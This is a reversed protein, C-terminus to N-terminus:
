KKKAGAKAEETEASKLARTTDITVIPSSVANLISYSHDPLDKVKFSNGIDLGSINVDIAEPMDKPLAKVTLKRLKQTLKGGKQVGPSTGQFAIPILMKIEKEHNLLLFDAHFLYGSVPHFQAEQLIAEYEEGEINLNVFAPEPRNLLERFLIMPASFHVQFDGGYLVCPAIGDLRMRKSHSKGLNARKYGIIEVKRM